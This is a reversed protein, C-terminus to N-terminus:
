ALAALLSFVVGTGLFGESNDSAPKFATSQTAVLSTFGRSSRNAHLLSTPQYLDLAARSQFISRVSALLTTLFILM